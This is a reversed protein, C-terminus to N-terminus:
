PPPASQAPRDRARTSEDSCRRVPPSGVLFRSGQCQQWPTARRVARSLSAFTSKGSGNMGYILCLHRLLVIDVSFFDCAAPVKAQTRCFEAWTPDSRRPSPEIDHRCLTAWVSSPVLPLTM